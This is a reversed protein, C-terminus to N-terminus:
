KDKQFVLYHSFGHGHKNSFEGKLQFHNESFLELITNQPLVAPYRDVFCLWHKIMKLDFDQVAYFDFVVFGRPACVRCMELFYEFSHLFPLYVFVGHAHVLGCSADPTPKLTHGDTPQSTVQYTEALWAAWDDAVEYSDYQSPQVQKQVRELYRGTGAGIECVRECPVLSGAERMYQIVLDTAGQQDWIKEVYDSVSLGQQKAASVTKAASIYGSTRPKMNSITEPKQLWTFKNMFKKLVNNM